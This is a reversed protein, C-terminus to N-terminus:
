CIEKAVERISDVAGISYFHISKVGANILERCKNISWEIGKQQLVTDNDVASGAESM